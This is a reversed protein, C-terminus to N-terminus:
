RRPLDDSRRGERRPHHPLGGGPAPRDGCGAGLCTPRDRRGAHHNFEGGLERLGAAEVGPASWLSERRIGGGPGDTLWLEGVDWAMATGIDRLMAEGGEALTGSLALARTVALRMRLIRDLGAQERRHETRDTFVGLIHPEEGISVMEASFLGDLIGGDRARLRVEVNRVVAGSRVLGAIRGNEESDAWIVLESNTHGIVEERAYGLATLFADNADVFRGDGASRIALMAPSSRFVTAFGQQSARLARETELRETVNEVLLLRALRGEFDAVRATVEVDLIGGEKTRHRVGTFRTQGKGFAAVDEALRSPEDARLDDISLELFEARTYGYLALAAENVGLFRATSQDWLFMPQPNGDFLSRFSRESLRLSEETRKRATIDQVTVVAGARKGRVFVAQGSALVTRQQADGTAIVMEVNRLVEGDLARLLPLRDCRRPVGQGAGGAAAPPAPAGVPPPAPGLLDQIARNSVALVGRADCAM